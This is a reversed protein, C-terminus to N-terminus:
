CGMVGRRKGLMRWGEGAKVSCHPTSELQTFSKSPSIPFINAQM